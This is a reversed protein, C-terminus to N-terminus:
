DLKPRDRREDPDLIVLVQDCILYTKDVRGRNEITNSGKAQNNRVNTVHTGDISVARRFLMDQSFALHCPSYKLEPNITTRIAWAVADLTRQAELMWDKGTFTITRLMGGMTLHVREIVGNSRPNRVTTPVPKVGYSALLEQFEGGMFEGGNDLVVRDPHPYRCLWTGDFLIAVQQSSKSQTAVFEPWGTGKDIITLAQLQQVVMKGPQDTLEFHVTWPGIMDVHVEEWPKITTSRPLPIKGYKKVATIKYSQCVTCNKMYTAIDQDIKPWYLHEKVTAQMRRVGPHQLCDHYWHLLKDRMGEPVYITETQQHVFLETNNKMIKAFRPNPKTLEAALYTESSQQEAIKKLNLPFDDDTQPQFLFLEETPVRSLADARTNTEGKIYELEAGYEEILLRQRLVRDSAHHSNPHVLNKHDTKILIRHGLLMHRFYKLMETIALLEQETVPYRKQVETLKKSFFGLPKNNQTIVGGIQKNSADTHVVFPEDFNPYTLMTEKAMTINLNGPLNQIKGV